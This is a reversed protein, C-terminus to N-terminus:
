MSSNMQAHNLKTTCDVLICKYATFIYNKMILLAHCFWFSVVHFNFFMFYLMPLKPTLV